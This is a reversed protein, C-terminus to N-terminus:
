SYDFGWLPLQIPLQALAMEEGTLTIHGRGRAAELFPTVIPKTVADCVISSNQLLELGLPMPDTRKMGLPTANLVLDIEMLEQSGEHVVTDPHYQRLSEELATRRRQDLEFIHINSAGADAIAHAVAAGAGGAGILLFTAGKPEFGKARVASAFAIGDTMDGHLSGDAQRVILNVARAQQARLSTTDANAFAAQKHPMTISIGACNEWGRVMRFFDDVHGPALQMPMIAADIGASRFYRNMPEPTIVQGIPQGIMPVIRTRPTVIQPFGAATM